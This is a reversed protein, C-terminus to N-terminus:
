SCLAFPCMSWFKSGVPGAVAFCGKKLLILQTKEKHCCMGTRLFTSDWAGVQILIELEIRRM